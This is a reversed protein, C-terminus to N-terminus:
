EMSSIKTPSSGPLPHCKSRQDTHWPHSRWGTPTISYNLVDHVRELPASFALLALMMGLDGNLIGFQGEIIEGDEGRILPAQHCAPLMQRVWPQQSSQVRIEENMGGLRLFSSGFNQPGQTTQVSQTSHDFGIASWDMLRAMDVDLEDEEDALFAGRPPRLIADDQIGFVGGRTSYYASRVSFGELFPVDAADAFRLAQGDFQYLINHAQHFHVEM